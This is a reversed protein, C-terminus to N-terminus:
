NTNLANLRELMEAATLHSVPHRWQPAIEAIPRLVFERGAIGPHPLNLAPNKENIKRGDYDIIDLDLTRPGWKIGRKRGARAEIAHLCALLRQPQLGTEILAVANVFDPQDTMGFPATVILSSARLCRLPSIALETLAREVSATPSGWPGPQNSGLAILIV